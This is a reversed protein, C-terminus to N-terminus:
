ISSALGQNSPLAPPPINRSVDSDRRRNGRLDIERTRLIAGSRYNFSIIESIKVRLDIVAIRMTRPKLEQYNPPKGFLSLVLPM